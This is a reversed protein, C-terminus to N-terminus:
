TAVTGEPAAVADAFVGADEPSLRLVWPSDPGAHYATVHLEKRARKLTPLAIGVKRAEAAVDTALRPGGALAEELWLIARERPRLRAPAADFAEDATMPVPEAEWAIVPVAPEQAWPVIRYALGGAGAVLNCKVPLFLMRRHGAGSAGSAPDPGVAWAARAAGVFALSGNARYLIRAESKKTLHSIAVVAAGAQEALAHLSALAGRVSSNRNSDLGGLYASVPDLVVLRVDGRERMEGELVALDRALSFPLEAHKGRRGFVGLVSVRSPDGGAAELRPLITDTADDEASLLVV